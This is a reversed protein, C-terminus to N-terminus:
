ETLNKYAMWDGYNWDLWSRNEYERKFRSIRADITEKFVFPKMYSSRSGFKQVQGLEIDEWYQPNEQLLHLCNNPMEALYDFHFFASDSHNKNYKIIVHDWNFLSMGWLVIFFSLLNKRWLFHFSKRKNVKVYVTYLGYLTALLFFLVGIRKYALAFHEIYRYNRIAVAIVLVANQILWVNVLVKLTKSKKYFNINGKFFYLVLGISLLISFILIYTGSHVFTKLYAGSWNFHIWVNWVDSVVVFLILCNLVAFLFTGAQVENRLGMKRFFKTKRVRVLDDSKHPELSLAQKDLKSYFVYSSIILGLVILGILSWEVTPFKEFVSFIVDFIKQTGSNFEPSAFSYLTTFLAIFLVPVLFYRVRKFYSWAMGTSDGSKKFDKFFYGVSQFSNFLSVNFIGALSKFEAHLSASVIFVFSSINIVYSLTSYHWFTALLSTFLTVVFFKFYFSLKPPTSWFLLGLSMSEFLFLNLGVEHKYFLVVFVVILSLHLFIRNKM